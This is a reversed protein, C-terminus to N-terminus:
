TSLDLIEGPQYERIAEEFFPDDEGPGDHQHDYERSIQEDEYARVADTYCQRIDLSVAGGLRERYFGLTDALGRSIETSAQARYSAYTPYHLVQKRPISGRSQNM